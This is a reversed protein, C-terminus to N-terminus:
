RRAPVFLGCGFHRRGGIGKEQLRISEEANLGEVQLAFGVINKDRIRLTRRLFPSHSGTTKEQNQSLIEPQYILGPQAQINLEHLQKQVANLFAEPESFGKIITLASYLRSIPELPRLYGGQLSVVYGGINLEQGALILYNSIETYPLRLTLRSKSQLQLSRDKQPRGNILFVGVEQDTHLAQIRQSLASYLLYGHDAPLKVDQGNSRATRLPFCLDVKHQAETM